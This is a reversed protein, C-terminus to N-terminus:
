KHTAKLEAERVEWNKPNTRKDLEAMTEIEDAYEHIVRGMKEIGSIQLKAEAETPFLYADLLNHIITPLGDRMTIYADCKANYLVFGKLSWTTPEM